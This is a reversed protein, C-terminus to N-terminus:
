HSFDKPALHLVTVASPARELHTVHEIPEEKIMRARHAFRIEPMLPLCHGEARSHEDAGDRTEQVPNNGRCEGLRSAARYRPKIVPHNDVARDM